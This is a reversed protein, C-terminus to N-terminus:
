SKEECITKFRNLMNIKNKVGITHNAHWMFQRKVLDKNTEMIDNEPNWLVFPQLHNLNGFGLDVDLLRFRPKSEEPYSGSRYLENFSLQDCKSPNADMYDLVSQLYKANKDTPYLVMFGACVNEGDRQCVMDLKNEELMTMLTPVPDLKDNFRVDVDCYIFPDKETKAHDLVISMKERMAAIFEPYWGHIESERQVTKIVFPTLTSPLSPLFHDYLLERHSESYITIVKV